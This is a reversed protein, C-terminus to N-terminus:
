GGRRRKREEAAKKKWESKDAIHRWELAGAKVREITSQGPKRLRERNEDMWVAFPSKPPVYADPDERSEPLPEECSAGLKMEELGKLAECEAVERRYRKRDQAAKRKWESTDALQRWELDAARVRELTSQGPKRLRERNEDM